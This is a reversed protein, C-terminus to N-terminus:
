KNLTKIAPAVMETPMKEPKEKMEEHLKEDLHTTPPIEIPPLSEINVPIPVLVGFGLSAKEGFMTTYINLWPKDLNKVLFAAGPMLATYLPERRNLFMDFGPFLTQILPKADRTFGYIDLINEEKIGLKLAVEKKFQSILTEPSKERPQILLPTALYLLSYEGTNKDWYREIATRLPSQTITLTAPTSKPLSIHFSKEETEADLDLILSIKEKRPQTQNMYIATKQFLGGLEEDVIKLGPLKRDSLKVQLRKEKELTIDFLGKIRRGINELTDLKIGLNLLGRPYIRIFSDGSALYISKGRKLYIARASRFNIGLKELCLRIKKERAYATERTDPCPYALEALAGLITTPLPLKQTTHTWQGPGSEGMSGIYIPDPFTLEAAKM